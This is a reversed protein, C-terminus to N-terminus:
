LSLRTHPPETGPKPTAWFLLSNSSLRGAAATFTETREATESLEATVTRNHPEIVRLMMSYGNALPRLAGTVVYRVGERIGVERAVQEDPPELNDVGMLKLTRHLRFDSVTRVEPSNALASAIM